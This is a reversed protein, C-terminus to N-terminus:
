EKTFTAECPRLTTRTARGFTRDFKGAMQYSYPTGSDKGGVSHEPRGTRGSATIDVNGDPQIVGIYEVSAPAGLQGYQGKLRGDKIDVGFVFTYGKVVAGNEKVDDCVLKVSWKGDFQSSPAESSQVNAVGLAFLVIASIRVAAAGRKDSMTSPTDISCGVAVRAFM